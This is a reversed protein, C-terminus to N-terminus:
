NRLVDWHKGRVRDLDLEFLKPPYQVDAGDDPDEAVVVVYLVGDVELACPKTGRPIAKLQLRSETGEVSSLVALAMVEEVAEAAQEAIYGWTEWRVAQVYDARREAETLFQRNAWSHESRTYRDTVERAWERAADRMAVFRRFTEIATPLVESDATLAREPDPRPVVPEPKRYGEPDTMPDETIELTATAM